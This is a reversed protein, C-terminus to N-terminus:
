QDGNKWLLDKLIENMIELYRDRGYKKFLDSPDKSEYKVPIEVRKLNYELSLEMSDKKGPNDPNNYDNDYFLIINKYRSKLEEIIQPKPKYGEGQMCIAPIGLNCMINLCDKVSSSIILNNGFKPIKTWLSWVSRDINSSWKYGDKNFPQYVKLTVKGEKHEVYAYAYKDAKFVYKNGNKIIIKHSIPYVEAYKLWDLSIGYSEWYEVDYSAWDRVKCQLDTSKKCEITSRVTCPIHKHVNPTGISCLKPIDKNIRILVEKYSCGWMQCLLDFIGGRDKTAFDVFYIRKGNPSYLGFSPRNDKRLPSHIICPIETVGLYFSLINAETTKELIDSLTVSSEGKSVAM